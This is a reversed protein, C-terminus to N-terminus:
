KLAFNVTVSMIVPVPVGNLLAPTFKWQRVAELAAEELLPMPRLVRASVVAGEVDIAAEIIVVGQIKASRALPPYIPSVNVIKQPGRIGSHMHIPEAPATPVPPPPELAVPGAAGGLGVVGDVLGPTEKADAPERAPEAAIGDPAILPAANSDSRASPETVVAPRPRRPPQPLTIDATRISLAFFELAERPMPLADAGAITAVVLGTILILHTAISAIVLPTRRSSSSRPRAVVDGFLDPPM